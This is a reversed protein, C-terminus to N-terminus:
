KVLRMMRKWRFDNTFHKDPADSEKSFWTFVAKGVVHDEPVFGWFRSDASNHRNDGMLFYYNQKFTYSAAEAGNIFIRGDKVKTNNHEYVRIAREYLPWNDVSLPITQGKAPLVLPGFNDATWNWGPQNPFISMDNKSGLSDNKIWWRKVGEIKNLSEAEERTCVVTHLTDNYKQYSSRLDLDLNTRLRKEMTTTGPETVIIHVFVLGEPDEAPKGNIHVQGDVVSLEDGPLGICRKIYHERKDLPRVILGEIPTNLSRVKKKETFNKRAVAEYKSRNSLYNAMGGAEAIAENRLIAYYDHGQLYGHAIVTDGHPFNFVVADNRQVKGLGPMRFYPMEFWPLYSKTNFIPITHHVLPLSVPTMPSRAGYSM